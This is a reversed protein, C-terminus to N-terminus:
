FHVVAGLFVGEFELDSTFDDLDDLELRVSRYGLTIDVDVAINDLLEYGIGIQVDHVTNDDIALFNGNAFINFSTAPLGIETALYLMPIIGSVNLEGEDSGSAVAIDADIDRATLGFDISILDNDFLEYYLTYDTYNTDFETTAEGTVGDFAIDLTGEGEATLDTRSIKINPIFPLPHELAAYFSGNTEDDFSFSNQQSSEGFSGSTNTQWVSGGLYVGLITDAYVTTSLMTAVAAALIRKKM